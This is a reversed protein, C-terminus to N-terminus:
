PTLAATIDAEVITKGSADQVTASGSLSIKIPVPSKTPLVISTTNKLQAQSIPCDAIYFSVTQKIIPITITCNKGCLPCSAKFPILGDLKVDIAVTSGEDLDEDLEVDYTVDISDGWGFACDNSGYQDSETCGKAITITGNADALSNITRSATIGSDEPAELSAAGVGTPYSPPGQAIGCMDKGRALRVYGEEGWTASWSNKVKWYDTGTTADTGYGVVLVGHDLNQGCLASNIVGSKYSQFITQDAEIAVSVPGLNVASVLDDESSVDKWGSLTAAKKCTPGIIGGKCSGSQQTSGSTYPYDDETCIGHKKVWKFANDMLGGNCGQDSGGHFTNDCSVLEQESFSVLNGTAIQYAGEISGTTSFSWCSGCQGQNKVPTVAGKTVWDVSDAIEVGSLDAFDLNDRSTFSEPIMMEKFESPTMDSFQNHGLTWSFGKSNHDNIREDTAKFKIFAVEDDLDSPYVKNFLNKYVDWKEVADINSDDVVATLESVSLSNCTALVGAVAILVLAFKM